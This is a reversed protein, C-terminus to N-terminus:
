KKYFVKEFIIKKEPNKILVKEYFDLIEENSKNKLFDKLIKENLISFFFNDDVKSLNEQNQNEIIKDFFNDYKEELFKSILFDINLNKELNLELNEEECIYNKLKEIIKEAIEFYKYKEKLIELEKIEDQNIKKKEKIRILINALDIM